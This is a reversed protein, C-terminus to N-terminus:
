FTSIFPFSTALQIKTIIEKPVSTSIIPQEHYFLHKSKIYAKSDIMNVRITIQGNYKFRIMRKRNSDKFDNLIASQNRAVQSVSNMEENIDFLINLEFEKNEDSAVFVEIFQSLQDINIKVLETDLDNNGYENSQSVKKLKQIEHNKNNQKYLCQVCTKSLKNKIKKFATEPLDNICSSCNPM